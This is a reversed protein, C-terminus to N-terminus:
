RSGGMLRRDPGTMSVVRCMEALRSVIRKGQLGGIWGALDSLKPHNTTIITQLKAQYRRNIVLFLQEAAWETVREAGVDDLILLPTESVLDILDSSRVGADRDYSARLEALLDPLTVFAGAQGSQVRQHLVAAALHSKGTGNNGALLLGERDPDDAIALAAEFALKNHQDVEYTAFTCEGLRRPIRASKLLTEVRRREQEAAFYRCRGVAVHLKESYVGREIVQRWGGTGIRCGDLSTCQACETSETMVDTVEFIMAKVEDTTAEIGQGALWERATNIEETSWSPTM